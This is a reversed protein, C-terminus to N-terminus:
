HGNCAAFNEFGTGSCCCEAGGGTHGRLGQDHRRGRFQNRTGAFAAHHDGATAPTAHRRRAMQAFLRGVEFHNQKLTIRHEPGARQAVLPQDIDNIGIKQHLRIHRRGLTMTVGKHLGLDALDITCLFAHVGCLTIKIVVPQHHRGADTVTELRPEAVVLFGDVVRADIIRGSINRTSFVRQHLLLNMVELTASEHECQWRRRMTARGRRILAGAQHGPQELLFLEVRLDNNEIRFRVHCRDGAAVLQSEALEVRVDDRVHGIGRDLFDIREVLHHLSGRAIEFEIVREQHCRVLSGIQDPFGAENALGGLALRGTPRRDIWQEIVRGIIRLHKNDAIRDTRHRWLKTVIRLATVDGVALRARHRQM